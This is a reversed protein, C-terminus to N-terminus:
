TGQDLNTLSPPPPPSWCGSQLSIYFMSKHCITLIQMQLAQQLDKPCSKDCHPVDSTEHHTIIPYYNSSTWCGCDPILFFYTYQFLFLYFGNYLKNQVQLYDAVFSRWINWSVKWRCTCSNVRIYCWIFNM